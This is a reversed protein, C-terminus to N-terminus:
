RIGANLQDTISMTQTQAYPIPVDAGTDHTGPISLESWLVDNSLHAMWSDTPYTTAPRQSCLLSSSNDNGKNANYICNVTSDLVAIAPTQRANENLPDNNAWRGDKLQCVLVNRSDSNKQFAVFATDNFSTASCGIKAREQQNFPFGPLWVDHSSDWAFDVLTGDSQRALVMHLTPSVGTVYLGPTGQSYIFTEKPSSWSGPNQYDGSNPPTWRSINVENNAPNVFACFLQDMFGILAPPDNAKVNLPSNGLWGKVEKNNDDIYDIWRYHNLSGDSILLAHLNQTADGLVALAGGNTIHLPTATDSIMVRPNWGAKKNTGTAFYATNDKAVWMCCLEGNWFTLAPACPTDALSTSPYIQDLYTWATVGLRVAPQQPRRAGNVLERQELATRPDVFNQNQAHGPIEM